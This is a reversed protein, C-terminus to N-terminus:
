IRKREKSLAETTPQGPAPRANIPVEAPVRINCAYLDDIIVEVNVPWGIRKEFIDQHGIELQWTYTHATHQHDAGPPAWARAMPNGSIQKRKAGGQIQVRLRGQPLLGGCPHVARVRVILEYEPPERLRRLRRWLSRDKPVPVIDCQDVWVSWNDKISLSARKLAIAPDISELGWKQLFNLNRVEPLAQRLAATDVVLTHLYAPGQVNGGGAPLPQFSRQGKNTKVFIILGKALETTPIAREVEVKIEVHGPDVVPFISLKESMSDPQAFRVQRLILELEEELRQRNEIENTSIITVLNPRVLGPASFTPRPINGQLFPPLPLARAMSDLRGVNVNPERRYADLDPRGYGIFYVPWQEARQRLSDLLARFQREERERYIDLLVNYRGDSIFFIYRDVESRWPLRNQSLLRFPSWFDSFKATDKKVSSREKWKELYALLSDKDVRTFWRLRKNYIATENRGFPIVAFRTRLTDGITGRFKALSEEEDHLMREAVNRVVEWRVAPPDNRYMTGSQDIIFVVDRRPLPTECPTFAAKKNDAQNCGSLILLCTWGSWFIWNLKFM